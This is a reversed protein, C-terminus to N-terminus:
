IRRRRAVCGILAAGSLLLLLNAPEPV